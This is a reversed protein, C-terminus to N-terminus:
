RTAYLPYRKTHYIFHKDWININEGKINVRESWSLSYYLFRDKGDNDKRAITEKKKKFRYSTVQVKVLLNPLRTVM